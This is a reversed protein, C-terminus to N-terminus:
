NAVDRPILAGLTPGINSERQIGAKNPSASGRCFIIHKWSDTLGSFLNGDNAVM